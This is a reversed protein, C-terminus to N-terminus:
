HLRKSAVYRNGYQDDNDGDTSKDCKRKVGTFSFVFLNTRIDKVLEYLDKFGVILGKGINSASDPM